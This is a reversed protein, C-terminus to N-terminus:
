PWEQFKLVITLHKPKWILSVLSNTDTDCIIVCETSRFMGRGYRLNWDKAGVRAPRSRKEMYLTNLLTMYVKM